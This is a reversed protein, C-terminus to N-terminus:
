RGGVAFGPDRPDTAFGCSAREGPVYSPCAIVNARGPDPVPAPMPKDSRLTNYMGAAVAMAAGEQGSGSVTARFAHIHANWAIAAALLPAPVGSPSAGLVVGTGPAIRGTGFLNDMTVDCAVAGGNRDMTVFSTSAPLNPLSAAPVSAKLLAMPDGGQSRWAAAVDIARAAAAGPDSPNQRLALFAAAAALGGDAPPPLFSIRDHRDDITLAPALSPLGDRLAALTVGGGAQTAARAFEAALRGQYLDGVGAVRLRALTAALEPQILTQGPRLKQGGPLFVAASEPDAALPGAVVSLDRVLARSAPTGFRALQEAPVILSDFPAHGYRAHLLYMGRALMPVAAPRSGGAGGPRPLFLVAEPVGGDISKRAPDYALCAGGSGLSARSPLTVSLAFAIAVAADAATGGQSLVDRGILAARPEDAVVAGLFGRVHGVQGEAPRPAGGFLGGGASGGCGALSLATVMAVAARM